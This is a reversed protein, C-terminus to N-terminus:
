AQPLVRRPGGQLVQEQFEAAECAREQLKGQGVLCGGSRNLHAFSRAILAPVHNDTPQALFVVTNFISAFEGGHGDFVGFLSLGNDLDTHAIHSDEM